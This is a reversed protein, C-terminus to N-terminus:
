RRFELWSHSFPWPKGIIEVCKNNEGRYWSHNWGSGMDLYLADRIGADQLAEVFEDYHVQTRSDIICVRGNVLALARYCRFEDIENHYDRKGNLLIIFQQFGSGGGAAAAKVAEDSQDIDWIRADGNVFTFAGVGEAPRGEWLEGNSAHMGVINDHSFGLQHHSQFAATVSLLISDDETSPMKETVFDIDNYKPFFIYLSDTELLLVDKGSEELQKDVAEVSTFRGDTKLANHYQTTVIFLSFGIMVFVCLSNLLLFIKVASLAPTKVDDERRHIYFVLGCLSILANVTVTYFPWNFGDFIRICSISFISMMTTFLYWIARYSNKVM